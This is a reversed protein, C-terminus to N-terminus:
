LRVSLLFIQDVFCIVFLLLVFIILNNDNFFFFNWGLVFLFIMFLLVFKSTPLGLTQCMAYLKGLDEARRAASFPVNRGATQIIPKFLDLLKKAEPGKSDRLSAAMMERVDAKQLLELCKSMMAPHIKHTLQNSLSRTMQNHMLFYIQPNNSFVNTYQRLMQNRFRKSLTGSTEMAQGVEGNYHLFIHPYGMVYLM